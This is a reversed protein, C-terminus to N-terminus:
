NKIFRWMRRGVLQDNHKYVVPEYPLPSHTYGLPELITRADFAIEAGGDSAKASSPDKFTHVPAAILLVAGSKLSPALASFSEKYLNAVYAVADDVDSRTETGKRPRGLYTETVIADTSAPKLHENVTQASNPFLKYPPLQMNQTRMWELNEKTDAVAEASIDSGILSPAGLLAAEMLITGSGCFPDHITASGIQVGSLNVMMRALKPPLMGQKANRRPRGFDRGAWADVDQVGVTKGILIETQSVFFCYEAGRELLHNKTIVVSSLTPSSSIVYRAPHRTDQLQSKIEMGLKSVNRRANETGSNNGISYVSTGFQIKGEPSESVLDNVLFEALDTHNWTPVSGIIVGIKQIGGLKANLAELNESMDDFIAVDGVTTTPKQGTVVALEALSLTPHSGLIAFTQM